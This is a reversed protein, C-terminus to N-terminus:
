PNNGATCFASGVQISSTAGPRADRGATSLRQLPRAHERGQKSTTQGDHDLCRGVFMRLLRCLRQGRQMGQVDVVGDLRPLGHTSVPEPPSRGTWRPDGNVRRKPSGSDDLMPAQVLALVDELQAAAVAFHGDTQM